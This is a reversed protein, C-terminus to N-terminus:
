HVDSSSFRFDRTSILNNKPYDGIFRIHGIRSCFSRLVSVTAHRRRPRSKVDCDVHRVLVLILHPNIVDLPMAPQNGRNLDDTRRVFIPGFMTPGEYGFTGGQEMLVDRDGEDIHDRRAM